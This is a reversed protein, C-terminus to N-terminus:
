ERRVIATTRMERFSATKCEANGSSVDFEIGFQAGDVWRVIGWFLRDDPLLMSVIEGAGPPVRSATASLGRSSLDRVMIDQVEDAANTLCVRTLRRNRSERFVPTPRFAKKDVVSM